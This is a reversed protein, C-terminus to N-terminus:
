EIWQRKKGRGGEIWEEKEGILGVAIAEPPDTIVRIACFVFLIWLWFHPEFSTRGVLSQSLHSPSALLAQFFHYFFHAFHLCPPIMERARSALSRFFPQWYGVEAMRGTRRRKRGKAVMKRQSLVIRQFPWDFSGNTETISSRKFAGLKRPRHWVGSVRSEKRRYLFTNPITM